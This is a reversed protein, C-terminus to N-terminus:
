LNWHYVVDLNELWLYVKILNQFKGIHQKFDLKNDPIITLHKQSPIRGLQINNMILVPHTQVQSKGSFLVEQLPKSSGPNFFCKGIM